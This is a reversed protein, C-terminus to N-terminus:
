CDCLYLSPLQVRYDFLDSAKGSLPKPLEYMFLWWKRPLEWSQWRGGKRKWCQTQGNGTRTAQFAMSNMLFRSVVLQFTIALSNNWVWSSIWVSLGPMVMNFCVELKESPISCCHLKAPLQWNLSANSFDTQVPTLFFPCKGRVFIVWKCIIIIFFLRLARKLNCNGTSLLFTFWVLTLLLYM